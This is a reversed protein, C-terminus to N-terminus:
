ADYAAVLTLLNKHAKDADAPRRREVSRRVLGIVTDFGALLEPREEDIAPRVLAWLVEIRALAERQGDNDIIHDSLVATELALEDLLESTSGAPAFQTTPPADAPPVTTAAPDFTTEACAAPALTALVVVMVRPVPGFARVTV